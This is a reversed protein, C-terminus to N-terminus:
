FLSPYPPRVFRPGRSGRQMPTPYWHPMRFFGTLVPFHGPANGAVPSHPYKPNLQSPKMTTTSMTVAGKMWFLRPGRQNRVPYKGPSKGSGPLITPMVPGAQTKRQLRIM